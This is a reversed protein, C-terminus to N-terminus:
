GNLTDGNSFRDPMLLYIADSKDFGKRSLSGPKRSRLEYAYKVQIEWNKRFVIEFYGPPIDKGIELEIFLYNPNPVRKIDSIEVGPHNIEAETSSINPGYVLLELKPNNMGTWWFPPEIREIKFNDGRAMGYVLSTLLILYKFRM